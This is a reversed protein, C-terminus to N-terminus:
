VHFLWHIVRTIADCIVRVLRFIAWLMRFM